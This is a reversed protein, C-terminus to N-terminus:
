VIAILTSRRVPRNKDRFHIISVPINVRKIVCTLAFTMLDYVLSPFTSRAMLTSRITSVKFYRHYTLSAIDADGHYRPM